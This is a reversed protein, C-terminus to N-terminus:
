KKRVLDLMIEPENTTIFTIGKKLMWNMTDTDNVTWVNTTLNLQTAQEIWNENKKLVSQNYDLGWLKDDALEQPSKDGKLYAVHAFPDLRLIEKCVEYDFSIYDAWAQAKYKRVMEVVKRASAVAHTKGSAPKIEFVLRTGNQQIGEKIYAELTPLKEGNELKLNRLQAAASTQLVVDGIKPDHNIFLVSDASMHIDFESGQCGLKIAHKLASISNESAGTNKWAGRHAIVKNKHFQDNLIRFPTSIKKGAMEATIVLDYWKKDAKIFEPTIFLINNSITFARADDGKLKINVLTGNLAAIKGIEPEGKAFTYNSLLIDNKQAHMTLSSTLLVISLLLSKITGTLNLSSNM